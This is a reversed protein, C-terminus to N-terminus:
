LSSFYTAELVKFLNGMGTSATDTLRLLASQIDLKQQELKANKILTEARQHIGLQELFAAQTTLQAVKLGANLATKALKEFDVHATLDAEGVHELPSVMKHAKLAQLTDGFGSQTHGYDIFLAAGSHSKLHTSLSKIIDQSAPSIEFIAGNKVGRVRDKPDGEGVLTSPYGLKLTQTSNSSLGFVLENNKDLGVLREHWGSPQKMFQRIPLADFFENAIIINPCAPLTDISYHWAIKHNILAARQIERLVPSIEVLHVELATNFDPVSKAARLADAMLTGRGPGFEVLAVKTPAGMKQWCDAAWLGILEGFMQSIEPATTFDGARGLPDRTMYYGYTPHALCLEMFRAINVPGDQLILQKLILELPTM